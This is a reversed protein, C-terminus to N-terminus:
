GPASVPAELNLGEILASVPARSAGLTGHHATLTASQGGFLTVDNDDWIIPAVAETAATVVSAHLQVAPVDSVNRLTVTWVDQALEHRLVTGAEIRAMPLQGLGRLDAFARTPTYQWTTAAWDPEDASTSLWYVNRSLLDGDHGALRLELFYTTSIGTPPEVRACTATMGPGLPEVSGHDELIVTGDLDRAMITVEFPGATARTRNSVQVLHRDYTYLVHLPENAKKTGFYAGAPDLYHDYLQWNLSPWASNLMWYVVGTAPENDTARSRYAEFQARTAEYSALQAKSAFDRLSRPEGYRAALARSFIALNDFESPPGAHYQKANPERWLQELERASLMKDLSTLRPVNNGASTESNFGVAGGLGPDTAYWYVPPVWAYPGTMKMGSPGTAETGEATASSIIPLPWETATLADVYIRATRPPPAFDSGILFGIVCPHDRLRAAESAMSRGAIAFDHDTWVSGGTQAHAEWKTCCEWGPLVMIGAEDALEFFEPNELKGELRITNLGLDVAYAIHDRLRRVDHRLFLDPAWGAGRIAIPRGNVLFRRGGGAAVDSTVSRMGFRSTLHDSDLGGATVAIQLRYLPQNGEGAPWWIAPDHVRLGAADEPGLRVTRTERPGLRLEKTFEITNGPGSINGVLTSATARGALNHVDVAVRVEALDLSPLRLETTVRLDTLQLEGLRLIAVDRWIGMNNDPPWSNWDVWGISLDEMPNSPYVQFALANTGRRVLDTLDFTNCTYAGAIQRHDAVMVGNVWLDAKPNIGEACLVTHADAPVTFTTRYWWPVEFRARDIDAMNTSWCIDPFQGNALLAAMVTSRKPATYWRDAGYLPDSIMAGGSADVDASQVQWAEVVTRSPPSTADTLEM